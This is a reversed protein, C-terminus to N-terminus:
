SSIQFIKLNKESNKQTFTNMVQMINLPLNSHSRGKFAIPQVAPSTCSTFHKTETVQMSSCFFEQIFVMQLPPSYCSYGHSGRYSRAKQSRSCVPCPWVSLCSEECHQHQGSKTEFCLGNCQIISFHPPLTTLSIIWALTECGPTLPDHKPALAQKM